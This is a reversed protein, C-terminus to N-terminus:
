ITIKPDIWKAIARVVSAFDPYAERWKDDSLKELVIEPSMKGDPHALCTELDIPWTISIDDEGLLKDIKDRAMQTKPKVSGDPLKDEDTLACWRIGLQGAISVFAPVAGVDGCRTISISRGDYDIGGKDFALAVAFTDNKGECLVVCTSFLFDHAGREDLKSQVKAEEDIKDTHVTRYEIRGEVRVMRTISQDADFSIMEPAHTSYVITWGNKALTGLVKRLKRRLHPHLHTEPEELLVVVRSKVEDPFQSLAELAAIRVISQWGDGMSSLPTVVGDPDSALSISLQQAIWDEFIQIDPRLEIKADVGVYRSIVAEVSPKMKDRWFPFKKVAEGLFDHARYLTEPMATTKGDDRNIEWSTQLFQRVLLKSLRAVPGTKWKFLSAEIEQPRLLWVEPAEASIDDLRAYHRTWHLNHDKWKIKEEKSLPTWPTLLIPEFKEDLLTRRADARENKYTGKVQIGHVAVPKQVGGRVAPYGTESAAEFHVQLVFEAARDGWVPCFFDNEDPVYKSFATSGLVFAIADLVATKGANNSGILVSPFGYRLDLELHDIGRWKDIVVRSLKYDIPM